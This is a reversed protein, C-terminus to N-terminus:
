KTKAFRSKGVRSSTSRLISKERDARTVSLGARVGSRGGAISTITGGKVVGPTKVSTTTAIRRVKSNPM